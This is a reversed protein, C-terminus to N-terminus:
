NENKKIWSKMASFVSKNLNKKIFDFKDRNVLIIKCDDIHTWFINQIYTASYINFTQVIKMKSKWVM